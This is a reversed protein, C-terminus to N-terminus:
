VAFSWHTVRVQKILAEALLKDRLADYKGELAEMLDAETDTTVDLCMEPSLVVHALNDRSNLKRDNIQVIQMKQM